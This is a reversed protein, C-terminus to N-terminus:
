PEKPITYCHVEMDDDVVEMTDFDVVCGKIEDGEYWLRMGFRINKFMWVTKWNKDVQKFTDIVYGKEKSLTFDPSEFIWGVPVVDDAKKSGSVTFCHVNEHYVGYLVGQYHMDKYSEPMIVAYKKKEM